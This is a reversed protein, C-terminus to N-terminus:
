GHTAGETLATHKGGVKSWLCRQNNLSGGAVLAALLGRVGLGVTPVWLTHPDPTLEAAGAETVAVSLLDAIGQQIRYHLSLDTQRRIQHTPSRDRTVRRTQGGLLPPARGAPADAVAAEAPGSVAAASRSDQNVQGFVVAVVVHM